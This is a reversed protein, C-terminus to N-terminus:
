SRYRHGHVEEKNPTSEDCFILIVVVDEIERCYNRKMLAILDLM